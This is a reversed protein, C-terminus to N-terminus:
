KLKKLEAELEKIQKKLTANEKELAKLKAEHEAVSKQSHIPKQSTYTKSIQNIVYERQM